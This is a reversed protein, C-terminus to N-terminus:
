RQQRIKKLIRKELLHWSVLGLLVIFIVLFLFVIVPNYQEFLGVAIFFQTIPYHLIYIGYSIDGFWIVQHLSKCGFAFCYILVAYALPMTYELNFFHETALISLALPIIWKKHKLVINGFYVLGIGSTFYTMYTPLQHSLQIAIPNEIQLLIDRYLLSLLYFLILYLLKKKNTRNNLFYILFPVILYFLVEIKLTWLAGNIDCGARNTLFVGPLCPEIFNLFFINSILYRYTQVNNFYSIPPLSSILSLFITSALIVVLYAPLLRAARKVFYHGVDATNIYSKTILFGSIIFFGTISYYSSFVSLVWSLEEIGALLIIHIVVVILSFLLRILDFNNDRM